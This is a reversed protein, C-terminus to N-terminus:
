VTVEKKRKSLNEVPIWEGKEFSDLIEKEEKTLQTKMTKKALSPILCSGCVARLYRVCANAGM